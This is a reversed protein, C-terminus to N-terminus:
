SEEEGRPGLLDPRRDRTSERAREARWEAVAAHHHLRLAVSIELAIEHLRRQKANEAGPFIRALVAKVQEAVDYWASGLRLMARMGQRVRAIADVM